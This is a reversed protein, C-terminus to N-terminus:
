KLNCIYDICYQIEELTLMDKKKEAHVISNRCMRLKQLYKVFKAEQNYGWGDDEQGHQSCYKDLMESFDGEYHYSSRLIAELRVCLKIIVIETNGKKLESEFYEQTLENVAKIKEEEFSCDSIVQQRYKAFYDIIYAINVFDTNTYSYIPTASRLILKKDNTSSAFPHPYGGYASKVYISAIEKEILREDYKMVARALSDNKSDVAYEFLARWQKNQFMRCLPEIPHIDHTALAKKILQLNNTALLEDINIIGDHVTSQITLEDQTVSKDAKLKAMRIEYESAIYPKFDYYAQIARNIDDFEKFLAFDGKELALKITEELIRVLGHGKNGGAAMFFFNPAYNLEGNYRDRVLKMNDYAYQNNEVSLALLRRLMKENNHLYSQHILYPFVHYWVCQRNPQKGLLVGFTDENIRKDCVITEFIDDTLLCSLKASYEGERNFKEAIAQPALMLLQTETEFKWRASYSRGLSFEAGCLLDLRNTLISLKIADLIPFKAISGKQSECLKVFVNFSQYQLIYDVLSKGQEDKHNIDIGDLMAPNDNKACLEAKSITIVEREPEKGTMIYDISVGFLEAIAPFFEISPAGNDKEWKSVAKDSVQLKEALEAQTWGKSKRLEAITKGISHKKSFIGM